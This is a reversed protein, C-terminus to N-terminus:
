ASHGLFYFKSGHGYAPASALFLLGGHYGGPTM